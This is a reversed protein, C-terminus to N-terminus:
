CTITAKKSVKPSLALDTQILDAVREVDCREIESHADNIHKVLTKMSLLKAQALQKLYTTTSPSGAVVPAVQKNMELLAQQRLAQAFANYLCNGDSLTAKRNSPDLYWHVNRDNYLHITPASPVSSAHIIFEKLVTDGSMITVHVNVNLLNGLANAHVDTAWNGAEASDSLFCPLNKPFIELSQSHMKKYARRFEKMMSSSSTRMHEVTAARLVPALIEQLAQESERLLLKKIATQTNLTNVARALLTRSTQDRFLMVKVAHLVNFAAPDSSSDDWDYM